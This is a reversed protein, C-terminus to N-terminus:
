DNSLGEVKAIIICLSILGARAKRETPSLDEDDLYEYCDLFAILANEFRCHVMNSM